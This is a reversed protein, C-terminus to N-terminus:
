GRSIPNKESCLVVRAGTGVAEACGRSIACCRMSRSTCDSSVSASNGVWTRTAAALWDNATTIPTSARSFPRRAVTENATGL